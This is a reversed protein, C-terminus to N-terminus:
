RSGMSRSFRITPSPGMPAAGPAASDSIHTKLFLPQALAIQLASIIRAAIGPEAECRRTRTVPQDRPTDVIENLQIVEPIASTPWDEEQPM